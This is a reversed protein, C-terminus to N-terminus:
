FPLEEGAGDPISMFGDKDTAPAVSGGSSNSKLLTDDPIKYDGKRIKDVLILSHCNTYFGHKDGIAFEKNNFLAGILKGKLKREDWDWRYGPNSDEINFVVTNFKTKAWNDQESGDDKPVNLRYVGKWKKDEGQQTRYNKAFFDKYEGEAIDFSIILQSGWSQEVEKADMIKLVYGGIPLREQEKYTNNRDFGNYRRM